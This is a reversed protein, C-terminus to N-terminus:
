KLPRGDIQPLDSISRLFKLEGYGVPEACRFINYRFAPDYDGIDPKNNFRELMVTKLQAATGAGAGGLHFLAVNEHTRMHLSDSTYNPACLIRFAIM